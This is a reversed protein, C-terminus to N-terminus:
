MAHLPRGVSSCRGALHQCSPAGAMASDGTLEGVNDMMKSDLGVNEELRVDAARLVQRLKPHRVLGGLVAAVKGVEGKDYLKELPAAVKRTTREAAQRAADVNGSERAFASHRGQATAGLGKPLAAAAAALKRKRATGATDSDDAPAAAQKARMRSMRKRAGVSKVDTKQEAPAARVFATRSLRANKNNRAPAATAPAEAPAAQETVQQGRLLKQKGGKCNRSHPSPHKLKPM